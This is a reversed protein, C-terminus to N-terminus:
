KFVEAPDAKLVDRVAAVGAVMCMGVTLLLVFAMRWFNLFMLLGTAGAVARFLLWALGAAPVFGLLALFLGQQLVVGVLFRNSFGMAKLTAFQPLYGSVNSYLVQFCILVGIFLGVMMGLPFIYGIATSTAWYNKELDMLGDKTLVLVDEPLRRRLEERVAKVGAGSAVRVVGIEVRSLHGPSAPDPFYRLFNHDAMILNGDALFDTGLRFTGVVEVRRRSLETRTGARPRGYYDRSGEDFLVTDPRKLDAAHARVEPFNFVPEDPNIGLVRVPRSTGDQPNHWAARETEVYLPYVAAVGPCARAQEIRSSPFPEPSYMLYKLKNVIMLDGDLRRILETQSDYMADRFGTQSFMLAAALVVGAISVALRRPNHMLIRLGLPLRSLAAL